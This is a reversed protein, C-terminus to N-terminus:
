GGISLICTLPFSATSLACKYKRSGLEYVGIVEDNDTVILNGDSDVLQSAPMAISISAKLKDSM